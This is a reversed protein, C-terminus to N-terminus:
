VDAIRDASGVVVKSAMRVVVAVAEWAKAALMRDAASAKRSRAIPAIRVSVAPLREAV